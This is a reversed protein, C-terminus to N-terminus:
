GLGGGLGWRGVYENGAGFVPHLTFLCQFKTNNKKYNHLKIHLSEAGRLAEVIEDNLYDETEPGQLFRCNSGIMEKGFGTVQKFSENIYNLPIGPITMDSVVAGVTLTESALKFAELWQDPAAHDISAGLTRFTHHSDGQRERQFLNNFMSYGDRSDLFRHFLDKSLMDVSTAVWTNLTGVLMSWAGRDTSNPMGTLAVGEKPGTFKDPNTRPGWTIEATSCYFAPNENKKLLLRRAAKNKELGTKKNVKEMEILYRVHYQSLISGHRDVFTKFRDASKEDQMMAGFAQMPNLKWMVKTMGFIARDFNTTRKGAGGTDDMIKVPRTGAGGMNAEHEADAMVQDKDGIERNASMDTKAALKGKARAEPRSSMPLTRPLMKLLKDLQVLRTKLDENEVVEFQM